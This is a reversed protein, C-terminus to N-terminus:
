AFMSWVYLLIGLTGIVLGLAYTQINGNQLLKLGTGSLTTIKGLGHLTGDIAGKDLFRLLFESSKKVPMVFIFTYLEDIYYKNFLVTHAKSFKIKLHEAWGQHKHFTLFTWLATALTVTITIFMLGYESFGEHIIELQRIFVPNLFHELFNDMKFFAYLSHPVGILGGGLSLLALLILSLAMLPPAEHLHDKSEKRASGYFVLTFLRVMYFTTMLAGLLGLVWFLPNKNFAFWLIEDKSFFGSFPPCGIIALVGFLFVIHTLPLKSKLNGMKQIDQEGHLAHIVSGAALFLLAKFFAHTILHFIGASFAGIGVALFMYGLQSITSYALVKKIDNQFLAMSASFLATVIGVTAIVTMSFPTLLYWFHLRAVMYVGATVMTAAHILASVPTPGAMADPLWVYLPIQASKGCAGIFLLFTIMTLTQLQGPAVESIKLSSINLTGFTTFILFLAILFALDGIRNVLFAKKGAQAKEPDEFWFGILLYSCLGVGEWGIFLLLLNNALVLLLMAFTFLNLYSFYRALSPDEEMYNASYLHILFGVGTIVLVLLLSLSDLKLSVDVGLLPIWQFLTVTIERWGEPSQLFDILLYFATAFSIFVSACGIISVAVKPLRRGLLGNILFGLLPFLLLASLM